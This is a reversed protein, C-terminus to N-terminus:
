VAAAYRRRPAAGVKLYLPRCSGERSSASSAAHWRQGRTVLSKIVCRELAVTGSSRFEGQQLVTSTWERWLGSMGKKAQM